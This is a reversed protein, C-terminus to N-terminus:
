SQRIFKIKLYKKIDSRFENSIMCASFYIIICVMIILLKITYSATLSHLLIGFISMILSALLPIKINNIMTSIKFKYKFKLVIVHMIFFIFITIAKAICLFNFSKKAGVVIIPTMIIIFITQIIFSIKPNGKARYVESAFNSFLITFAQTFGIISIFMTAEEWKSGLLVWTVVDGFILMGFSMPILLISCKKQFSNFTDKFQKDNNQSRSLASFLVPIITTTILTTIQNVSTLSTKYLGLHYNTILNGLIFIDINLTLWISLSEFLTWMSFSFMEKLQKLNYYMKPKWKSKITLFIADSLKTALTGIILSWCSCTFYAIPVTVILPIVSNIISPIFLDKFNFNRKYIAQQISSFSLLPIALASILLHLGYGPNGVLTALNNRYIAIILWIIISLALNTWFAVNAFNYLENDDKFEHQILYKQFGADTFLDAFSIVVNITAVVCFIDPTLLRALIMNIIPTILKRLINTIASWKAANHVKTTLNDTQNNM